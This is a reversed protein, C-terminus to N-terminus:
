AADRMRVWFMECNYSSSGVEYEPRLFERIEAPADVGWRVGEFAYPFVTGNPNPTHVYVANDESHEPVFLLWVNSPKEWGSAQAIVSEFISFLRVLQERLLKSNGNGEGEWDVHTHWLDYWSSASTDLTFEPRDPASM